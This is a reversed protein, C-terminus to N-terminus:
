PLFNPSPSFTIKKRLKISPSLANEKTIENQVISDLDSKKKIKSNNIINDNSKNVVLFLNRNTTKFVPKFNNLSKALINRDNMKKNIQSKKNFKMVHITDMNDDINDNKLVELNNM